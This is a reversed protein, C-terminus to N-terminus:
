EYFEDKINDVNQLLPELDGDYRFLGGDVYAEWVENHKKIEIM